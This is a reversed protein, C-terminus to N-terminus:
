EEVTLLNKIQLLCVKGYMNELYWGAHKIKEKDSMNRTFISIEDKLHNKEYGSLYFEAFPVAKGNVHHMLLFAERGKIAAPQYFVHIRCNHYIVPVTDKNGKHVLLFYNEENIKLHNTDVKVKLTDLLLFTESFFDKLARYGMGEGRTSINNLSPLYHASPKKIGARTMLLQEGDQSKVAMKAYPQKFDLQEEKGFVDGNTMYDEKDNNYVDGMVKVTQYYDGQAFVEVVFLQLLIYVIFRNKNQTWM